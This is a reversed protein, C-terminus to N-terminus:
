AGVDGWFPKTEANVWEQLDSGDFASSKGDLMYKPDGYAIMKHSAQVLHPAVEEEEAMRDASVQSAQVLDPAVDAGAAKRDVAEKSGTQAAEEKIKKSDALVKAVYVDRFNKPFIKASQIANVTNMDYNELLSESWERIEDRQGDLSAKVEDRVYKYLLKLVDEDEVGDCTSKLQERVAAVREPDSDFVIKAFHQFLEKQSFEQGTKPGGQCKTTDYWFQAIKRKSDYSKLEVLTWGVFVRGKEDTQPFKSQRVDVLSISQWIEKDDDSIDHCQRPRIETSGLLFVRGKVLPHQAFDVFPISTPKHRSGPPDQIDHLGRWALGAKEFSLLKRMIDHKSEENMEATDGQSGEMTENGSEVIKYKHLVTQKKIEIKNTNYLYGPVEGGNSVMYALVCEVETAKGAPLERVRHLYFREDPHNQLLSVLASGLNSFELNELYKTKGAYTEFPHSTTKVMCRVM